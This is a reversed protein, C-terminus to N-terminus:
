TVFRKHYFPVISPFFVGAIQSPCECPLFFSLLIHARVAKQFPLLTHLDRVQFKQNLILFFLSVDYENKM